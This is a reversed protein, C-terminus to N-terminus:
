RRHKNQWEAIRKRYEEPSIKEKQLAEVFERFEEREEMKKLRELMKQRITEPLTRPTTRLKYAYRGGITKRDFLRYAEEIMDFERYSEPELKGREYETIKQSFWAVMNAVIGKEEIAKRVSINAALYAIDKEDLLANVIEDHLIWDKKKGCLDFLTDRIIPFVEEHTWLPIM